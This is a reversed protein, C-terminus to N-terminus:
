NIAGEKQTSKHNLALEESFRSPKEFNISYSKTLPVLPSSFRNSTDLALDDFSLERMRQESHQQSNNVVKLTQGPWIDDSILGNLKKLYNYNMNFMIAIKLLSDGPKVKYEELLELSDEKTDLPLMVSQTKSLVTKADLVEQSSIQQWSPEKKLKNSEM